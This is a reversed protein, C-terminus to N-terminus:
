QRRTPPNIANLRSGYGSLNNGPLGSGGRLGAGPLQWENFGATSIGGGPLPRVSSNGNGSNGRNGYLSQMLGFQGLSGLAGAINQQGAGMLAQAANYADAYQQQRAQQLQSQAAWSAARNQRKIGESSATLQSLADDKNRQASAIGAFPNSMRGLQRLTGQASRDINTTARNYEQASMGERAAQKAENAIDEYGSVGPNLKEAEALAKKAKKRQGLGSFLGALSSGISILGGVGGLSSIAKGAGTQEAM